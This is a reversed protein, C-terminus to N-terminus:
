LVWMLFELIQETLPDRFCAYYSSRLAGLVSWVYVQSNVILSGFHLPTSPFSVTIVRSYLGLLMGFTKGVTRIFGM